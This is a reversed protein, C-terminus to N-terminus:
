KILIIGPFFLHISNTDAGEKDSERRGSSVLRNLVEMPKSGGIPLQLADFAFSSGRGGM